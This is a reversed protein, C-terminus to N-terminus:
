KLIELSNKKPFTYLTSTEGRARRETTEDEQFAENANGFVASYAPPPSTPATVDDYSPPMM